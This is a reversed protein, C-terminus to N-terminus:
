PVAQGLSRWARVSRVGAAAAMAKGAFISFSYLARLQKHRRGPARYRIRTRRWAHTNAGSDCPKPRAALILISLFKAMEKNQSISRLFTMWAPSKGRRPGKKVNLFYGGEGNQVM